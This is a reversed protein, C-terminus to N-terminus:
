SGNDHAANMLPIEFNHPAKQIPKAMMICFQAHQVWEKATKWVHQFCSGLENDALENFIM